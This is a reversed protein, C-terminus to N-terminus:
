FFAAGYQPRRRRAPLASHDLPQPLACDAQRGRGAWAAGAPLLPTPGGRWGSGRRRQSAPSPPPHLHFSLGQGGSSVTHEPRSPLLHLRPPRLHPPGGHQRATRRPLASLAPDESRRGLHLHLSQLPITLVAHQFGHSIGSQSVPLSIILIM